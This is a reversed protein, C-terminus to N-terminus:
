WEIGSKRDKREAKPELGSDNKSNSCIVSKLM